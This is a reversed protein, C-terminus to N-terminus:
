RGPYSARLPERSPLPIERADNDTAIMGDNVIVNLVVRSVKCFGMKSGTDRSPLVLPM